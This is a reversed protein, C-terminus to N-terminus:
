LIYFVGNRAKSIWTKSCGPIVSIERNNEQISIPFNPGFDSTMLIDNQTKWPFCHVSASLVWFDEKKFINNWFHLIKESFPDWSKFIEFDSLRISVLYSLQYLGSIKGLELSVRNFGTSNVNKSKPQKLNLIKNHTTWLTLNQCKWFSSVHNPMEFQLEKFNTWGLLKVNWYNM